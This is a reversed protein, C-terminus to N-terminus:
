RRLHKQLFLRTEQHTVIDLAAEPSYFKVQKIEDTEPHLLGEGKYEVEFITTEQGKFGNRESIEQSFHFYIAEDIQKVIDYETGGTEEQLERLLAAELDADTPLVGGKPIDWEGKIQVPSGSLTDM